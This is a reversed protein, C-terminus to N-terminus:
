GPTTLLRGGIIVNILPWGTVQVGLVDTPDAVGLSRLVAQQWQRAVLALYNIGTLAGTRTIVSTANPGTNTPQWTGAAGGLSTLVATLSEAPPATPGTWVPHGAQPDAFAAAVKVTAASLGAASRTVAQVWRRATRVPVRAAAAAKTVPEQREAGLLVQGVVQVGYGRRPLCWSALLVHTAKCLTCLGRAPRVRVLEGGVTQVSRPRARSWPRLVGGYDDKPCRLRREALAREAADPDAVIIM